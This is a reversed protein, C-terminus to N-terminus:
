ARNVSIILVILEVISQIRSSGPARFCSFKPFPYLYARKLRNEPGIHDDLTPIIIALPHCGELHGVCDVAVEPLLRLVASYKGPVEVSVGLSPDLELGRNVRSRDPDVRLGPM